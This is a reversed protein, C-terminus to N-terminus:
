HQDIAVPGVKVDQGQGVGWELQNQAYPQEYLAEALWREGPDALFLLYL